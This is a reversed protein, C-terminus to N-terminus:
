SWSRGTSVDVKIPVTTEVCAEMIEQWEKADNGLIPCGIEDHVSIYPVKGAKYAMVLASKMMDAASGQILANLGKHTESRRTMLKPWKAKSAELTVPRVDHGQKRMKYADVPEWKNFHRRRGCLTKIYGRSSALQTCKEAIEKVFPVCEDFNKLIKECEDIPKNLTYSLKEKGMGYCRGLYMDKATRRNIGAADMMFKYFDMNPDSKYAIAALNAGTYGCVNAFHTLIRPEQQSYDFKGWM